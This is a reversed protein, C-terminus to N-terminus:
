LGGGAGLTQGKAARTAARRTPSMPAPADTKPTTPAGGFVNSGTVLDARTKGLGRLMRSVNQRQEFRRKQDKGVASWGEEYGKGATEADKEDYGADLYLSRASSGAGQAASDLEQQTFKYTGDAQNKLRERLKRRAEVGEAHKRKNEEEKKDQGTVTDYGSSFVDHVAKFPNWSGM